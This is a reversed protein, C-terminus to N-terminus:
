SRALFTWGIEIASKSEDHGHYRSSGIVRGDKRDHVILAGGSNMAERFFGEFVDRKWRDNAPHLEWILPDSAVPYLADFDAEPVPPFAHLEGDLHPQLDIAM